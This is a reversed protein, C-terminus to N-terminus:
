RTGIPRWILVLVMFAASSAIVYVSREVPPPVIKLWWRKFGQRAMISHQLGFLAILGIDIFAATVPDGGPGYDVTLFVFNGVFAVLYLFTAFFIAYALIAFLMAAIRSM